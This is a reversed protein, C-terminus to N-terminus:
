NELTSGHEEELAVIRAQTQKLRDTLNKVKEKQQQELSAQQEKEKLQKEAEIKRQQLERIEQNDEALLEETSPGLANKLKDTFSKLLGSGDKKFIRDEGGQPGYRVIEGINEPKKGYGIPGIKRFNVKRFKDKILQFGKALRTKKEDASMVETLLPIDDPAWETNEPTLDSLEIEEGNHYPGSATAGSPQYPTSTAGPQFSYYTFHGIWSM